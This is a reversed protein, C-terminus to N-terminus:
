RASISRSTTASYEDGGIRGADALELIADNLADYIGHGACRGGSKGFVAM